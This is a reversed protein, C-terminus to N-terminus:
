FHSPYKKGLPKMFTGIYNRHSSSQKKYYIIYLLAFSYLHIFIGFKIEPVLPPLGTSTRTRKRAPKFEKNQLSNNKKKVKNAHQFIGFTVLFAALIFCFSGKKNNFM